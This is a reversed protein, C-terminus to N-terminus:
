RACHARMQRSVVHEEDAVLDLGSHAAGPLEERALVLIHAGVADDEALREAAPKKGHRREDAGVVQHLHERRAIVAAGETAIREGGGDRQRREVHQEVFTQDRARRLLARMQELAQGGDFARQDAFTRPLPSNMPMSTSRSRMVARSTTSRRSARPIRDFSVCPVTTRNAGGSVM